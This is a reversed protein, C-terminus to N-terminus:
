IVPATTDQEGVNVNVNIENSSTNGALDTTTITLTQTGNSLGTLDLEADFEGNENVPVIVEDGTNFRYTLNVIGSGTEDSTGTLRAGETLEGDAIPNNITLSPLQTDLSFSFNLEESNNGVADTAILKLTHEGESLDVDGNIQKLKAADFSFSGDTQLQALVDVFNETTTDN